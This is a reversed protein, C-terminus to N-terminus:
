VTGTSKHGSVHMLLDKYLWEFNETINFEQLFHIAPYLLKPISQMILETFESRGFGCCSGWVDTHLKARLVQATDWLLFALGAWPQLGRPELPAPSWGSEGSLSGGRSLWSTCAGCPKRRSGRMKGPDQRSM